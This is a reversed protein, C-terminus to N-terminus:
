NSIQQSWVYKPTERFPEVLQEVVEEINGIKPKTLGPNNEKLSLLIVQNSQQFMAYIDKIAKLSATSGQRSEQGGM